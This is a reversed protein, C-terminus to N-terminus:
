PTSSIQLPRLSDRAALLDLRATETLSIFSARLAAVGDVEQEELPLLRIRPHARFFRRGERSALALFALDVNSVAPCTCAVHM